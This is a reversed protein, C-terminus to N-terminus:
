GERCGVTVGDSGVCDGHGWQWERVSEREGPCPVGPSDGWAVGREAGREEAFGAREGGARRGAAAVEVGAGSQGRSM